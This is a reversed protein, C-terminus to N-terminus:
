VTPQLIKLCYYRSTAIYMGTNGPENRHESSDYVDGFITDFESDKVDLKSPQAFYTIDYKTATPTQQASKSATPAQQEAKAESPPYNTHLDGRITRYKGSNIKCNSSGQFYAVKFEETPKRNAKTEVPLNSIM